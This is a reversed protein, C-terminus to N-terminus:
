YRSIDKSITKKRGQGVGVGVRLGQGFLFVVMVILLEFGRTRGGM